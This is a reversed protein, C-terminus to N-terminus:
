DPDGSANGNCGEIAALQPRSECRWAEAKGADNGHSCRNDHWDHEKEYEGVHEITSLVHTDDNFRHGFHRHTERLWFSHCTFRDNCDALGNSSFDCSHAVADFAGKRTCSLEFRQHVILNRRKLSSIIVVLDTNAVQQGLKCILALSQDILRFVYTVCDGTHMQIKSMVDRRDAIQNGILDILHRLTYGAGQSLLAFM